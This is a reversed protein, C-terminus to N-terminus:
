RVERLLNAVGLARAWRELYPWDLAEQQLRIISRVDRLQLESGTDKAWLLKSLVLDEPAVMWLQHDDVRVQRRRGFEEIRYADDKRVVFDVKIVADEHIVNFMSQRAIASQIGDANAMFDSGLVECFRAMNRERLDVVVDIDRTMRPQGYHGAAISGTVMYGIGAADLRSSVLKLVSLQDLM